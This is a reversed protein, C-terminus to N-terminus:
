RVLLDSVMVASDARESESQGERERIRLLQAAVAVAIVEPAKGTIGEIGIPCVMRDLRESAIGRDRLRHEFKRRKTRSGILGFYAFDDREFIQQCLRQDLAHSYTMVLFYSRSPAKEILTEPTDTAEVTVNCPWQAPFQADREDVWTVTCPLAGLIKVLAQGVHGAGFLVINFRPLAIIETLEYRGNSHWLTCVDRSHDGNGSTDLMVPEAAAAPTDQLLTVRRICARGEDLCRAMAGIWGLDAPTLVEFVLTAVGGCCQGLSPGLSLRELHRAGYACDGKLMQRAIDAARWELHGGGITQWQQELSVLMKTGAERPTSGETRVVTVLVVLEGAALLRRAENIWTIMLM